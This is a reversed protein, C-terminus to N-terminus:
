CGHRYEEIANKNCVKICEGCGVCKDEVVEVRLGKESRKLILAGM